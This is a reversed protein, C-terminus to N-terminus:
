NNACTIIYSRLQFSSANSYVFIRYQGSIVNIPVYFDTANTFTHDYFVNLGDASVVLLRYNALNEFFAGVYLTSQGTVTWVWNNAADALFLPGDNPLTVYNGDGFNYQRGWGSSDQFQYVTFSSTNVPDTPSHAFASSTPTVILMAAFMVVVFRKLLKKM